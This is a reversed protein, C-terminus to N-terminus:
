KGKGLEDIRRKVAELQQGLMEAEGRLMEIEDEPTQAQPSMGMGGGRGM